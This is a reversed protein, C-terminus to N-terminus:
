EAKRRRLVEAAKRLPHGREAFSRTRWERYAADAEALAQEVQEPTFEDYSKLEEETAPNISKITQTAVAM